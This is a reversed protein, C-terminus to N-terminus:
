LNPRKMINKNPVNVLRPVSGKMYANVLFIM